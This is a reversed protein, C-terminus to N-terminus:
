HTMPTEKVSDAHLSHHHDHRGPKDRHKSRPGASLITSRAFGSHHSAARDIRTTWPWATAAAVQCSSPAVDTSFPPCAVM